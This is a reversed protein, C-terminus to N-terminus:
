ILFVCFLVRTDLSDRTSSRRSQRRSNASALPGLDILDGLNATAHQGCHEVRRLWEISIVRELCMQQGKDLVVHDPCDQQQFGEGSTPTARCLWHIHWGGGLELELMNEHYSALHPTLESEKLDCHRHVWPMPVQALLLVLIWVTPIKLSQLHYM